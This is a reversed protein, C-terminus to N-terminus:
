WDGRRQCKAISCHIRLLNFDFLITRHGAIITRNHVFKLQGFPILTTRWTNPLCNNKFKKKGIIVHSTNELAYQQTRQSNDM